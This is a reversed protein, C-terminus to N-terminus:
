LLISRVTVLISSWQPIGPHWPSSMSIQFQHTDISDESCGMRLKFVLDFFVLWSVHTRNNKTLCNRTQASVLATIRMPPYPSKWYHHYFHFHVVRVPVVKWPLSPHSMTRLMIEAEATRICLSSIWVSNKPVGELSLWCWMIAGLRIPLCLGYDQARSSPRLRSM